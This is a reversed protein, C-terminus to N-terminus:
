QKIRAKNILHSMMATHELTGSVKSTFGKQIQHEIFGNHKLFTFISDRLFSTFIKLPVSELTIPRFNSPDNTSDKKHILITSAKKWESQVKGSLWVVRIIESLFSRLYPSRKFCIISIKDLPCPSTSAKM